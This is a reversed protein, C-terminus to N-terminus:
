RSESAARTREARWEARIREAYTSLDLGLLKFRGIQHLLFHNAGARSLTGVDGALLAGIQAETLGPRAERLAREPDNRLAERLDPEQVIRYCLKNVPYMDQGMSAAEASREGSRAPTDASM